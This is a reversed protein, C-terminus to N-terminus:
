SAQLIGLAGKGSSELHIAAGADGRGRKIRIIGEPATM